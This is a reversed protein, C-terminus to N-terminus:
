AKRIGGDLGGTGDMQAVELESLIRYPDSALQSSMLAHLSMSLNARSVNRNIAFAHEVSGDYKRAVM